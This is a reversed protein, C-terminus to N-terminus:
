IVVRCAELSSATPAMKTRISPFITRSLLQPCRGFGIAFASLFTVFAAFLPLPPGGLPDCCSGVGIIIVLFRVAGILHINHGSLMVELALCPLRILVKLFEEFHSTQVMRVGSSIGGSSSITRTTDLTM